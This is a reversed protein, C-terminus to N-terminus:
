FSMTTPRRNGMKIVAATAVSVVNARGIGSRASAGEKTGEEKSSSGVELLESEVAITRSLQRPPFQLPASRAACSM